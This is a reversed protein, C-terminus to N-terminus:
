KKGFLNMAFGASKKRAAGANDKKGIAFPNPKAAEGEGPKPEEPSEDAAPEVGVDDGEPEVAGCTVLADYIAGPGGDLAGKIADEIEAKSPM